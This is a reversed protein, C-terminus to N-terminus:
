VLASATAVAVKDGKENEVWAEVVLRVGSGEEIKERVVGKATLRQPPHVVGIFTLRLKGTRFWNIGFFRTLIENIYAGSVSAEVLVSPFGKKRALELDTHFNRKEPWGSYNRCMELTFLISLPSLEHGVQVDRTAIIV